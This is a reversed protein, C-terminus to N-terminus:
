EPRLRPNSRGNFGPNTADTSTARRETSDSVKRPVTAGPQLKATTKENMNNDVPEGAAARARLEPRANRETRSNPQDPGARTDRQKGGVTDNTGGNTKAELHPATGAKTPAEVIGTDISNQDSARM